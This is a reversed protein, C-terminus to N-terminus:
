ILDEMKERRMLIEDLQRFIASFNGFILFFPLPFLFSSYHFNKLEPALKVESETNEAELAKELTTGKPSLLMEITKYKQDSTNSTM